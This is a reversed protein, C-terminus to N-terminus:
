KVQGQNKVRSHHILSKGIENPIFAIIKGSVVLAQGTSEAVVSVATGVAVSANGSLDAAVRISVTTADSASKLVLVVSEGAKEIAQVTLVSGAALVSATGAVVVGVARSAAASANASARSPDQAFTPVAILLAASLLVVSKLKM